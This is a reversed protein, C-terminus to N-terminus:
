SIQWRVHSGNEDRTVILQDDIEQKLETVHSIIGILRDGGAMEQLVRVAQNRSHEDLSGFGEDIFMMDLHIAATSMQIQDAMGLALSLAAMFSEGGSLTRIEREKGTVTSYVMLDLGRNKGKGAKEADVLRLEFQGGSMELFRRNTAHLIREMYYRQVFTELDMRGDKVNGSILRYLTDLRTYEELLQKREKRKTNLVKRTRENARFDEKIRNLHEQAKTTEMEARAREDNLAALDPQPRGGITESASEIRSKASTKKQTHRDVLARLRTEDDPSHNAALEMWTEETLAKEEMCAQYADWRSVRLSEQGPLEQQYKLVLAAAHDRKARAAVAADSAASAADEQKKLAKEATDRVSEAEQKTAFIVSAGLTEKNQACKLQRARADEEATKAAESKNRLTQKKKDIGDLSGRIENLLTLKQDLDPKEKELAQQKSTIREAVARIWLESIEDAEGNRNESLEQGAEDGRRADSIKQEAADEIRSESIEQGEGSQWAVDAEDLERILKDFSDRLSKQKEKLLEGAAHSEASLKKQTESLKETQQEMEDLIEQTIDEKPVSRIAPHPHEYSGCVPCPQGEQLSEALIGAQEHLFSRRKQEYLTRHKQYDDDAQLYDRMCRASKQEQKKVQKWLKQIEALSEALRAYTDNRGKWVVLREPIDSLDREQQRWTKESSELEELEAQRAAMAKQATKWAKQAKAAQRTAEALEDLVALAQTVREEIRATEAQQQKFLQTQEKQCQETTLLAEELSPLSAELSTLEKKSADVTNKADLYRQYESRIEFASRLRVILDRTKSIEDERQECETLEREANKKQSYIQALTHADTCADRKANEFTKAEQYAEEAKTKEMKLWSCMADLSELFPELVTMEGKKMQKKLRDIGVGDPYDEPIKVHDSETQSETRLTAIGQEKEKRRLGLEEEIKQYLDTHFLKRFIVKKDDSKARLLEMFEGQAIMAVQMFQGKTLGIIEELKQDTEKMPYESGDPMLLSVGGGVERTGSGKQTGRTLLRLHRPTRRVTYEANEELFTLEVFPEQDYATFQSQLIVGEKKNISSGTEGYLAFVIADFITTKGAGTDGTILFLNQNLSDFRITTLSGYSGFARMTLKIPRV